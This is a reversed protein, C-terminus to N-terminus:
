GLADPITQALRELRKGSDEPWSVGGLTGALFLTVTSDRVQLIGAPLEITHTGEEDGYGLEEAVTEALLPAHGPWITLTKAQALKVHIWGVQEAELVTESPTWVILRLPEAM